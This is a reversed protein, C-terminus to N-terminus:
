ILYLVIIVQTMIQHNGNTITTASPVLYTPSYLSPLRHSPICYEAEPSINSVKEFPSHHVTQSGVALCSAFTPSISGLRIAVM